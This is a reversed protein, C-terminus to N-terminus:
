YGVQKVPLNKETGVSTFISRPQWGRDEWNRNRGVTQALSASPPRNIGPVAGLLVRPWQEDGETKGAGSLNCNQPTKALARVKAM